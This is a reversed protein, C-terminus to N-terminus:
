TSENLSLLMLPVLLSLGFYLKILVYVKILLLDRLSCQNTAVSWITDIPVM